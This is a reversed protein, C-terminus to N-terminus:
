CLSVQVQTFFHYKIQQNYSLIHTYWRKLHLFSNLPLLSSQIRMLLASDIPSPTFGSCYSNAKFHQDLDKLTDKNLCLKTVYDIDM